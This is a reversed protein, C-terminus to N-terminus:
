ARQEYLTVLWGVESTLHSKMQARRCCFPQRVFISLNKPPTITVGKLCRPHSTCFHRFLTQNKRRAKLAPLLLSGEGRCPLLSSGAPGSTSLAGVGGASACMGVKIRAKELEVLLLWHVCKHQLWAHAYASLLRPGLHCSFSLSPLLGVADM